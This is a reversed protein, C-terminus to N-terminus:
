PTVKRSLPIARLRSVPLGASFSVSMVLKTNPISMFAVTRCRRCPVLSLRCPVLSLPHHTLSTAAM